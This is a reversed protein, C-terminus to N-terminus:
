TKNEPFKSIHFDLDFIHDWLMLIEPMIYSLFLTLSAEFHMLCIAVSAQLIWIHFRLYWFPM